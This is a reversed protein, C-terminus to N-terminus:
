PDNPCRTHAKAYKSYLRVASYNEHILHVNPMVLYTPVWRGIWTPPQNPHNSTLSIHTMNRRWRAAMLSALDTTRPTSTSVSHMARIDYRPSSPARKDVTSFTMGTPTM